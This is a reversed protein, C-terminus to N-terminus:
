FLEDLVRITPQALGGPDLEGGGPGCAVARWNTWDPLKLRRLADHCAPITEALDGILPLECARVRYLQAPDIEFHVIRSHPAFRTPYGTVRDYLLAGFVLLFYM